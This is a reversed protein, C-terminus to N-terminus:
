GFVHVVIFPNLANIPFHLKINRVGLEFDVHHVAVVVVITLVTVPHGKDPLIVM